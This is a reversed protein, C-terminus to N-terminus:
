TLVRIAQAVLAVLLIAVVLWSLAHVQRDTM